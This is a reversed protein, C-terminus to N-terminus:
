ERALGVITKRVIAMTKEEGLEKIFEKVLPGVIRAEIERRVLIGINSLDVAM